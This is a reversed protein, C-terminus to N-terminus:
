CKIVEYILIFEIKEENIKYEIKIINDEIVLESLNIDLNIYQNYEKLYLKGKSIEGFICELISDQNERKMIIRNDELLLNMNYGDDKFFINNEKKIGALKKKSVFENTKLSYDICIKSLCIWGEM